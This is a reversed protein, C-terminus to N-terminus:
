FLFRGVFDALQTAGAVGINNLRLDLSTLTTNGRLCDALQTTGAVGINNGSLGLSTLTTNGRMFDAVQTVGEAGINNDSLDLSTLTNNGRLCEALKTAGAADFNTYSLNLSTLKNNGRLGEALQMAGVAGINNDSLNLSTLKNNGRMVEALKTTGANGINSESLDLSTLMTNGRMVEALKTVGAIGINNGRLDLSTLTTNGLLAACLTTVHEAGLDCYDLVLAAVSTPPQLAAIAAGRMGSVCLVLPGPLMACAAVDEPNRCYVECAAHKLAPCTAALQRAQGGSLLLRNFSHPGALLVVSQVGACNGRRLAALVGNSTVAACVPADLHLERLTASARTCLQLLVENSLAAAFGDDFRLARWLHKQAAADRWMRCVCAARARVDLPLLCLVHALIEHARDSSAWLSQDADLLEPQGPHSM